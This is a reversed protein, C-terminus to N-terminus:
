FTPILILNLYKSEYMFINMNLHSKNLYQNSIKLIHYLKKTNSIQIKNKNFIYM